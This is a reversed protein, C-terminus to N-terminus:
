TYENNGHNPTGIESILQKAQDTDGSPDIVKMPLMTEKEESYCKFQIYGVQCYEIEEGKEVQSKQCQKVCALGMMVPEGAM